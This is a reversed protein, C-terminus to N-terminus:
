GEPNPCIRTPKRSASFGKSPAYHHFRPCCPALSGKVDPLGGLLERRRFPDGPDDTEPVAIDVIGKKHGATRTRLFAEDKLAYISTYKASGLRYHLVKSNDGVM